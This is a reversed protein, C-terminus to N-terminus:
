DHVMEGRGGSICVARERRDARERERGRERERERERERHQRCRLWSVPTWAQLRLQVLRSRRGGHEWLCVGARAPSRVSVCVCVCVCMCLCVHVCKAYPNSTHRHESFELAQKAKDGSCQTILDAMKLTSHTHTHTHTHTNADRCVDLRGDKRGRGEVVQNGAM